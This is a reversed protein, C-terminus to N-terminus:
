MCPNHMFNVQFGWSMCINDLRILNYNASAIGNRLIRSRKIKRVNRENLSRLFAIGENPILEQKSSQCDSKEFHLQLCAQDHKTADLVLRYVKDFINLIKRVSANSDLYHEQFSQQQELTKALSTCLSDQCAGTVLCLRRNWDCPQYADGRKAFM